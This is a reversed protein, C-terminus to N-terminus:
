CFIGTGLSAPLMCILRSTQVTYRNTKYIACGTLTTQGGRVTFPVWGDLGTTATVGRDSAGGTTARGSLVTKPSSGGAGSTGFAPYTYWFSHILSWYFQSKSKINRSYYIELYKFSLYKEWSEWSLVDRWIEQSRHNETNVFLNVLLRFFTTIINKNKM